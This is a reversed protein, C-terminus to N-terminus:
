GGFTTFNVIYLEGPSCDRQEYNSVSFHMIARYSLQLTPRDQPHTQLFMQMAM